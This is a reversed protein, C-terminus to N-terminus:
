EEGIFSSLNQTIAEVPIEFVGIPNIPNGTVKINMTGEFPKIKNLSENDQNVVTLDVTKIVPEALELLIVHNNQQFFQKVGQLSIETLRSKNLGIVLNSYPSSNDLRIHEEDPSGTTQPFMPSLLNGATKTKLNSTTVSIRVTKEKEVFNYYNKTEDLVFSIVREICDGTMLNLTDNVGNPLSRLVVEEPTTLINTKTSDENSITLVPMKVSVLELNRGEEFTELFEGTDIDRYKTSGKLIASKYAYPVVNNITAVTDTTITEIPFEAPIHNTYNYLLWEAEYDNLKPYGLKVQDILYAKIESEYKPISSPINLGDREMLKYLLESEYIHIM